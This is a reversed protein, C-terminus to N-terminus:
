QTLRFRRGAEILRGKLVLNKLVKRAYGYSCDVRNGFDQVLFEGYRNCLDRAIEMAHEDDLQTNKARVDHSVLMFTTKHLTRAFVKDPTFQICTYQADKLQLVGDGDREVEGKMKLAFTGLGPVQVRHGIQLFVIMQKVVASIAALVQGSHTQFNQEVYQLLAESDIRSYTTPEVFYM